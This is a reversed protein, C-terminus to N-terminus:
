LCSLWGTMESRPVQHVAHVICIIQCSPFVIVDGKSPLSASIEKARPEQSWMNSLIEIEDKWKPRCCIITIESETDQSNMAKELDYLLEVVVRDNESSKGRPAPLIFKLRWDDSISRSNEKRVKLPM